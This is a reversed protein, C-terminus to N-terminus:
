SATEALAEAWHSLAREAEPPRSWHLQACPRREALRCLRSVARNREIQFDLSAGILATVASARSMEAILTDRAHPSGRSAMVLGALPTAVRGKMAGAGEPQTRACLPIVMLDDMRVALLGSDLLEWGAKQLAPLLSDKDSGTDGALVLGRGGKSVAAAAFWAYDHRAQAFLGVIQRKLLIPLQSPECATKGPLGKQELWCETATISIEFNAIVSRAQSQALVGFEAALRKLIPADNCWIAVQINEFSVHIVPQRTSTAFQRTVPEAAGAQRTALLGTAVVEPTLFSEPWERMWAPNLLQSVRNWSYPGQFQEIMEGRDLPICNSVAHRGRESDQGSEPLENWLYRFAERKGRNGRYRQIMGTFTSTMTGLFEQAEAAVLQSLFALSLSDTQPLQAFEAGYHDLIHWDIFCHRPYALKIEMFFPDDREDTVIVLPDTRAFLQDMAEIAESPKRDLTTVGYTLKFDGRRLHVANFPGIDRAVRQALEAFAPKAQMRQLLRYVSRRAENDLYFQYSYSGLNNRHGQAGPSPPDESLRLVPVRDHEGTIAVWHSRGRAFSRADSSSLDLTKPFYFAFDGLSLETLELSELGKLDVADPEVWPVPIDLLDTVRSPKLNSVRGDYAVINAPPSVNGDLVLLRNSLHALIVGIEISMIGNSLGSLGSQYNTYFLYRM